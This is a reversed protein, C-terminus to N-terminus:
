IRKEKNEERPFVVHTFNEIGDQIFQYFSCQSIKLRTKLSFRATKAALSMEMEWLRRWCLWITSTFSKLAKNQAANLLSTNWVSNKKVVATVFPGQQMIKVSFYCMKEQAIFSQHLHICFIKPNGTESWWQEFKYTHEFCPNFNSSCHWWMTISM